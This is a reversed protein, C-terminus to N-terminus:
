QLPHYSKPNTGEIATDTSCTSYNWKKPFEESLRECLIIAEVLFAYETGFGKEERVKIHFLQSDYSCIPFSDTNDKDADKPPRILVLVM